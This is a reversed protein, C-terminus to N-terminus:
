SDRRAAADSRWVQRGKGSLAHARKLGRRIAISVNALGHRALYNALVRRVKEGLPRAERAGCALRVLLEAAATQEVQFRHVEAGEEIATTIALPLIAVRRKRADSLRLIDDRRGEVKVVPFASGCACPRAPMMVSDGLDYRIRPQVRNALNTLLVTASPEGPPVPRYKEDVPELCLWDANVHLAGEPCQWAINMFESAGYDEVLPCDFAREIVARAAPACWEGGAWLAAPEVELRGALREEALLRLMTPYSAIFAPEFAAIGRCTEEIPATVPFVRARAAVWPYTARLREWTSVGAFHGETAAVLALRSGAAALRVFPNWADVRGLKAFRTTSLADYVALADPDEVFLGHVGTTGSSTWVGYRGLFPKGILRPDDAFAEVRERTCQPDTVWADFDAMLERKTVPELAELPVPAAGLRGYRRRYFASNAAAHRVLSELRGARIGALMGPDAAASWWADRAYFMWRAYADVFSWQAEGGPFAPRASRHSQRAM